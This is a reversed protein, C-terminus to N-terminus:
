LALRARLGWVFISNEDPNLAPNLILQVDPTIALRQSVQMRYFIEAVIQNPLNSGFSSENVEGWHLGVGAMHGGNAAHFTFGTSVSKQLLSGGDETYGGRLFPMFQGTLFSASFNLGWGSPNGAEVMEDAHWFTIHVNDLYIRDPSSTWGIEAHTFYEGTNFFTDFGDGPKAPNSNMDAFGAIFFLNPAMSLGGALGLGENPVPMAASGTSFAFNMFGTWPSAGAWVDVYDTLDVFGANVTARGVIKQQWYLNTLRLKQNSFPPEILGVYGIEFGFGGPPPTTFGHRHEVKYVVRGMSPTDRGVVNWYGLLKIMGSSARKDGLSRNAGLFTTSSEISYAFGKEELLRRQFDFYPTM